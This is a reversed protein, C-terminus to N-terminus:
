VGMCNSVIMDATHTWLVNPYVEIAHNYDGWEKSSTFAGMHYVICAIEEQSLRAGMSLANIVSKTGHGKIVPADNWEYTQLGYDFKYQDIKCLDHLIGVILPSREASGQKWKLSNSITLRWLTQAVNVSHDFLGGEYNGHFKISAPAQLFGEAIMTNIVLEGLLNTYNKRFYEEREEKNKFKTPTYEM